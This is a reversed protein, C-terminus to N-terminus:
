PRAPCRAHVWAAIDAVVEAAVHGELEYDSPLSAGEGARFLHDLAPYLRLTASPSRRLAREWGAFDDATV